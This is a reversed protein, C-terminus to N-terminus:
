CLSDEGTGSAALKRWPLCCVVSPPASLQQSVLQQAPQCLSATTQTDLLFCSMSHTCAEIKPRSWQLVTVWLPNHTLTCVLIAAACLAHVATCAHTCSLGAAAARQTHEAARCGWAVEVHRMFDMCTSACSGGHTGSDSVIDDLVKLRELIQAERSKSRRGFCSLWQGTRLCAIACGPCPAPCDTLIHGM